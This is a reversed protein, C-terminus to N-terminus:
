KVPAGCNPCRDKTIEMLTGCYKCPMKVIERVIEKQAPASGSIAAKAVELMDAYTKELPNIGIAANYEAIAEEYRGKKALALGYLYRARDSGPKRNVASRLAAVAEDLKGIMLYNEGMSQDLGELDRNIQKAREYERDADAYKGGLRHTDGLWLHTIASDPQMRAAEELEKEASALKGLKIYCFGMNSRASVNDPRTELEKRFMDLAVPYNGTAMHCRGLNDYVGPLGPQKKLAMNFEAIAGTFNGGGMLAEGNRSHTNASTLAEASAKLTRGAITKVSSLLSMSLAFGVILLTIFAFFTFTDDPGFFSTIVRSAADYVTYAPGTLANAPEATFYLISGVILYIFLLATVVNAIKVVSDLAKETIAM